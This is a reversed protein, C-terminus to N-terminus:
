EKWFFYKNEGEQGQSKSKSNTQTIRCTTYFYSDISTKLNLSEINLYKSYTLFLHVIQQFLEHCEIRESNKAIKNHM